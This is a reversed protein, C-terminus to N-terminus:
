RVLLYVAAASLITVIVAVTTRPADAPAELGAHWPKAGTIMPTILNDRKVLLYFFVALVHLGILTLIVWQNLHHIHTLLRSTPNSVWPYLPGQTFIEDNAFLGTVAQLLLALLMAIISWGGLPNHGLHGPHDPRMLSRTYRWVATPGRVFSSFRAYRSGIIGWVLRFILLALISFGSWMHYRMANGGIKATVFSTTVLLVLAWHFLRTPRDWIMIMRSGQAGKEQKQATNPM